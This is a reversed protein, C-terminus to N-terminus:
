KNSEHHRYLLKCRNERGSDILVASPDTLLAELDVGNQSLFPKALGVDDVDISVTGSYAHLLGVNGTIQKAQDQRFIGNEPRNWGPRIPGKSREPIPCLVWGLALYDRVSEQM